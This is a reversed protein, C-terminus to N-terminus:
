NSPGYGARLGELLRRVAASLFTVASLDTRIAPQVLNLNLRPAGENCRAHETSALTLAARTVPALPPEDSM